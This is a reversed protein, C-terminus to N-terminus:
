SVRTELGTFEMPDEHKGWYIDNQCSTELLFTTQLCVFLTQYITTHLPISGAVVPPHLNSFPPTTYQHASHPRCCSLCNQEADYNLRARTHLFPKRLTLNGNTLSQKALYWQHPNMVRFTCITWITLPTYMETSTEKWIELKQIM